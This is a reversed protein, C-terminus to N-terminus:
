TRTKLYNYINLSGFTKIRIKIYLIKLINMSFFKKKVKM